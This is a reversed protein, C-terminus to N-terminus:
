GRPDAEGLRAPPVQSAPAQRVLTLWPLRYIRVPQTRALIDLMGPIDDLDFVGSVPTDPLRGAVVLSGPLYREIEDFVQALPRQNFILKDRQWAVASDLALPQSAAPAAGDVFALQRAAKLPVSAGGSSVKVEGETVGVHVRGGQRDVEFRTGVAQVSGNAAEVVFPRAADKRVDFLAEGKLLDIQRRSASYHVSVATASNLWVRSGDELTLLRREGVATAHDAFYVPLPDGAVMVALAALGAALAAWRLPRRAMLSRARFTAPRAPPLDLWLQETLAAAAEHQPSLRRWQAFKLYDAQTANGSTLHVWQEIAQDELAESPLSRNM